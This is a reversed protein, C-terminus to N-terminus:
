LDPLWVRGANASRPLAVRTTATSTRSLQRFIEIVSMLRCPTTLAQDILPFTLSM